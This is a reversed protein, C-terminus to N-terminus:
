LISQHFFLSVRRTRWFGGGIEGEPHKLFSKNSNKLHEFMSAGLRDLSFNFGVCHSQSRSSFAKPSFEQILHDYRGGAAFIDRRKSDFVCQFLVSGRFFKDNLSSLPNVYVKRKVGFSQIYSVLVNLRAFISPLKEAFETGEM